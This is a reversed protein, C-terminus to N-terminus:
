QVITNVYRMIVAALQGRNATGNPSLKDAATGGIIGNEVCWAFATAAEADLGEADAFKSLDANKVEPKGAYKYLLKVMDTRTFTGSVAYGEAAAWSEGAAAWNAGTSQETTVGDDLRALVTMMMDASVEKTPNFTDAGTGLMLERSSVFDAAEKEWSSTVDTFEVDNEVVAYTANGEAEFVVGQEGVATKKVVSWNGDADQKMVVARSSKNTVPIEVLASEAAAPVEITIKTAADVDEAATVESTVTAEESEAAAESLEVDITKEGDATTVVTETTGDAKTTTETTTGNSDTVTSSTSSADSVEGYIANGSADYGVIGYEAFAFVPLMLVMVVSLVLALIRRM